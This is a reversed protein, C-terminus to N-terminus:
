EDGGLAREFRGALDARDEDSLDLGDCEDRLAQVADPSQAQELDAQIRTLEDHATHSEGTDTDSKGGFVDDTQAERAAYAAEVQAHLEPRSNKLKGMAKAGSTVLAEYSADDAQQVAAIHESAWEAAKDPKVAQAQLRCVKFPARKGRTETLAMVMDNEIDSMHSIRIGGVELGGWKVKPDRYLTLSRGAYKSADPGWAQVLVRSMSKCPKWPKNNDGEFAISVPQEGPQIHVATITITRPGGIFDDANQQDSRPEIVSSMDNM